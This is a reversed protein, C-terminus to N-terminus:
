PTMAPLFEEINAPHHSGTQGAVSGPKSKTLPIWAPVRPTPDPQRTIATVKLIVPAYHPGGRHRSRRGSPSCPTKLRERTTLHKVADTAKTASTASAPQSVSLMLEPLAMFSSEASIFASMAALFM